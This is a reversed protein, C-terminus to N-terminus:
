QAATFSLERELEVSKQLQQKQLLAEERKKSAMTQILGVQEEVHRKIDTLHELVDKIRRNTVERNLAAQRELMENEQDLREAETISQTIEQDMSQMEQERTEKRMQHSLAEARANEKEDQYKKTLMNLQHEKDRLETNDDEIQEDLRDLEEQLAALENGIKNVEMTFQNRLASIVKEAKAKTDVNYLKEGTRAGDVDLRLELDQGHAYKASAPILGVKLALANFEKVRQEAENEASQFRKELEDKQKKIDLLQQKLGEERRRLRSCEALKGELDARTMTQTRVIEQLEKKAQHLDALKAQKASITRNSEENAKRVEEIRPIAHDIGKKFQEIDNKLVQNERELVIIPPVEARAADLDRRLNELSASRIRLQEQLHRKRNDFSKGMSEEVEPDQLNGTLMWTRYTMTLYNYLAGEPSVQSMDLRPDIDRDRNHVNSQRLVKTNEKHKAVVKIVDVMWGLLALMSPWSHPAGVTYLATKSITDAAPYRMTKMLVPVEDEFKKQFLYRPELKQYLFKFVDQFDKNTPQMLNKPTITHPYGNQTLYDVISHVLSRQFAKDKIPRPDKMSVTGSLSPRPGASGSMSQRPAFRNGVGMPPGMVSSSLAGYEDVTLPAMPSPRQSMMVSSNLISTRLGGSSSQRLGSSMSWRGNASAMTSAGGSGSSYAGVSQPPQMSNSYGSTRWASAIGSDAGGKDESDLLSFQKLLVCPGGNELDINYQYLYGDSTAVMVQPTTNSLAIVSQVGASPLKLHAFDRSPEFMETIAGPLYSGVSGALNKGINMSQRRIISSMGSGKSELSEDLSGGKSKLGGGASGSEGVKFIHVTDTDSSVCLLTSALNFSLSYIRASQAGRRFQYLRQANPISWIRIVTGKDSATALMTGESNIAINSVSTKHAQVINVVQLTLANFILVDGSPGHSDDRGNNSFPSTPSPTPSPYALYCHESSPSLACIAHPNPSTEITHLLKMNSIDYVYIQDELVVILRKRNLKVSLITTPFTLECITSQRKTNIIQLRRPSSAPHDGAGVIAVLSTCFLMEVIGISSDSKSYCKGFPDCNYIKFGHKTGVSICSFDQNFNMFLLEGSKATVNM